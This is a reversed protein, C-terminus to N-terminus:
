YKVIGLVFASVEACLFICYITFHTQTVGRRVSEGGFYSLSVELFGWKLLFIIGAALDVCMYKPLKTQTSM